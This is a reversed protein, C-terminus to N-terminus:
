LDPTISTRALLNKAPPIVRELSNTLTASFTKVPTNAIKRPRLLLQRPNQQRQQIPNFSSSTRYRTRSQIQSQYYTQQYVDSEKQKFTEKLKKCDAIMMRLEDFEHSMMDKLNDIEMMINSVENEVINHNKLISQNIMATLQTSVRQFSSDVYSSNAKETLRKTSAKRELSVRLYNIMEIIADEPNTEILENFQDWDMEQKEPIVGNTGISSISMQRVLNGQSFGPIVDAAKNEIEAIRANMSNIFEDIQQELSNM